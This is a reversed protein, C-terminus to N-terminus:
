APNKARLLQAASWGVAAGLAWGVVVDTLWHGGLYVMAVGVLGVASALAIVIGRRARPSVGTLSCAAATAVAATCAAHTSPMAFSHIHVLALDAPPRARGIISKLGVSLVYVIVLAGAVAVGLRWRRTVVVFVLSVLAVVALVEHSTGVDMLGNTLSDVMRVRHEAIFRMFRLDFSDV